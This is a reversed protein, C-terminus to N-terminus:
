AEPHDFLDFTKQSWNQLRSAIEVQANSFYYDQKMRSVVFDHASSVSGFSAFYDGGVIAAFNEPDVSEIVLEEGDLNLSYLTGLADTM